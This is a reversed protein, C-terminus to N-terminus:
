PTVLRYFQRTAAIANTVNMQRPLPQVPIDAVDQWVGGSVSDSSEVRYTKGEDVWFRLVCNGSNVQASSITPHSPAMPAGVPYRTGMPGGNAGAHLLPSDSRLRYDRAAADVFLPDVSLNGAYALNTGGVDSYTLILGANTAVLADVNTNGWVINDFGNTIHGGGGAVPTSYKQYLRVGYPSGTFTCNYLSATSHEKVAMGTGCYYVLCNSVVMGVSGPQNFATATGFSVGKDNIDYILCDHVFVKQSGNCDVADSNSGTSHRFTCHRIECGPPAGQLELADDNAASMNEFLSDEALTLTGNFITEDYHSVHIRQLTASKASDAEIATVVDHLYSDKVLLLSQSGVMIGGHSFEAHRITVVSNNGSANVALWRGSGLYLVFVPNEEIGAVDLTGGAQVEIDVNNTVHVQTGAMITLKLGAPVIVSSMVTVVGQEPSWVTNTTLTGGVNDARVSAATLCLVL